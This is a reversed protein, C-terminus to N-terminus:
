GETRRRRKEIVMLYPSDRRNPVDLRLVHFLRSCLGAGLTDIMQSERRGEDHGLYVVAILRGGPALADLAAELALRSSAVATVVGRGGGPLYGFNALVVQPAVTLYRGLDAHNDCILHVGSGACLSSREPSFRGVRAGAASLLAETASLAEEQIDFGVIMGEPGLKEFLFLTDQGRGVTLDVASGGPTLVDAAFAHAWSVMHPLQRNM